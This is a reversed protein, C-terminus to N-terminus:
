GDIHEALNHCEDEVQIEKEFTRHFSSRCIVSLARNARSSFKRYIRSVIPDNIGQDQSNVSLAMTNFLAYSRVMVTPNMSGTDLASEIKSLWDRMTQSQMTLPLKDANRLNVDTKM